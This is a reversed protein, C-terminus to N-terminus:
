YLMWDDVRTQQDEKFGTTSTISYDTSAQTEGDLGVATLLGTEEYDATQSQGGGVGIAAYDLSYDAAAAVAMLLAVALWFACIRKWYVITYNEGIITKYLRGTM